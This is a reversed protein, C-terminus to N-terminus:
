EIEVLNHEDLVVYLGDQGKVRVITGPKQKGFEAEDVIEKYSTRPKLQGTSGQYRDKSAKIAINGAQEATLSVDGRLASNKIDAYVAQSKAYKGGSDTGEFRDMPTADNINFSTKSDRDFNSSHKAYSAATQMQAPTPDTVGVNNLDGKAAAM